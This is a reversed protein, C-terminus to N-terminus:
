FTKESEEYLEEFTRPVYQVYDMMCGVNLMRVNRSYMHSIDQRIKKMMLWEPGTHVHGYFHSRGYHAGKFFPIPYHSLVVSGGLTKPARVDAYDVVDEFCRCFKKDSVQDDHNGRVLIKRGKLRCLMESSRAADHWSVDGLIYTLDCDCVTSNWAEIMKEDMESVDSFPRSDFRIANKHGFHIDSIFRTEM